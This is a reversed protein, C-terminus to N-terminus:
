RDGYTGGRTLSQRKARRNLYTLAGSLREMRATAKANQRKGTRKADRGLHTIANHTAANGRWVHSPAGRASFLGRGRGKAEFGDGGEADAPAAKAELLLQRYARGM